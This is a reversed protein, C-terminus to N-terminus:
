ALQLAQMYDVGDYIKKYTKSYPLKLQECWAVLPKREGFVNLIINTSRNRAQMKMPIFECNSPEYGKNIDKREITLGAQWGNTIAWDYFAQFDNRWEECVEIGRGGYRHYFDCNPNYCRDKIGKWKSYLPSHAKGHSLNLKRTKDSKICGCSKTNGSRLLNIYAVFEKGCDCKCVFMRRPAGSPYRHPKTESAIVLKGYRQGIPNLRKGM